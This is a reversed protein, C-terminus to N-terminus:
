VRVPMMGPRITWKENDEKSSDRRKEVDSSMQEKTMVM